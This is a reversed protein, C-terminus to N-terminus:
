LSYEEVLSKKTAKKRVSYDHAKRDFFTYISDVVRDQMESELEFYMPLRLLRGALDDTNPLARSDCGLEKGMPSNHLPIYHFVSQCGQKGMWDLLENRLSNSELLIYFIHYNSDCEKPIVPLSVLSRSQLDSLSRYYYDYLIRRKNSIKDLLELQGYLFACAVESPVYSSGADVWTYKDVHGRLFQQRNTGKDRIIEARLLLEPSNICLAGGEGCIYNKTEHFSYTGLHGLSGLARGKYRANVGQAADEIVQLNNIEGINNITDMECGVGAYHVPIIAKTKNSISAEILTEDINLTDARIDVFVPKAGQRLIANATSVFTYSPMIVEDGPELECLMAAMELSATCSPTMLVRDIDFRREMLQSCKTTYKGDGGINGNKVAKEIYELEKGAIFPKNFPIKESMIMGRKYM